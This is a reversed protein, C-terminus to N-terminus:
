RAKKSAKRHQKKKAKKPKVEEAPEVPLLRMVPPPRRYVTRRLSIGESPEGSLLSLRVNRANCGPDGEFVDALEFQARDVRALAFKRKM